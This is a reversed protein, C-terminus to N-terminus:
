SRVADVPTRCRRFVVGAALAAAASVLFVAQPSLVSWVFSAGLVGLAGGLGYGVM